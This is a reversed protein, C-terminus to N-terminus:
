KGETISDTMKRTIEAITINGNVADSGLTSETFEKTQTFFDFLKAASASPIDLAKQLSAATVNGEGMNFFVNAARQNGIDTKFNIDEAGELSWQGGSKDFFIDLYNNYTQQNTNGIFEQSELSLGAYAQGTHIQDINAPSGLEELGRNIYDHASEYPLPELGTNEKINMVIASLNEEDLSLSTSLGDAGAGTQILRDAPTNILDQYDSESLGEDFKDFSQLVDAPVDVKSTLIEGPGVKPAPETAETKEPTSAIDDPGMPTSKITDPDITSVSKYEPSGDHSYEHSDVPSEFAAGANHTEVFKGDHFESTTGDMNLEYASVDAAAVRVDNGASDIYGMDKALRALFNGKNSEYDMGLKSEYAKVLDPDNDLQREYAHTIGEGQRVIADNDFTPEPTPEPIVPEPEIPTPDHEGGEGGGFGSGFAVALGALAIGKKLTEIIEDRMKYHEMEALYEKPKIEGRNYREEVNRMNEDFKGAVQDFNAKSSEFQQRYSTLEAELNAREEPSLEKNQLKEKAIETQNYLKKLNDRATSTGHASELAVRAAVATLVLPTALGGTLLGRMAQTVGVGAWAGWTRGYNKTVTSSAAIGALPMSGALVAGAIGGTFFGLAGISAVSLGIKVGTPTKNWVNKIKGLIRGVGTKTNEIKEEYMKDYEAELQIGSMFKAKYLTKLREIDEPSRKENKWKREASALLKNLYSNLADLSERAEPSLGSEMKEGKIMRAFEFRLKDYWKADKFSAKAKELFDDKLNELLEQREYVEFKEVMEAATILETSNLQEATGRGRDDFARISYKVEDGEIFSKTIEYVTGGGAKRLFKGIIPDTQERKEKTELRNEGEEPKVDRDKETEDTPKSEEKEGENKKTDYSIKLISLVQKVTDRIDGLNTSLAMREVLKPFHKELLGKLQKPNMKEWGEFATRVTEQLTEARKEVDTVQETSEPIGGKSTGDGKELGKPMTGKVLHMTLVQKSLEIPEADGANEITVYDGEISTVIFIKNEIKIEQNERLTKITEIAEQTTFAGAELLTNKPVLLEGEVLSTVFASKQVKIPKETDLTELIIYDTGLEKIVYIKGGFNIEQGTKIDDMAEAVKELDFKGAQWTKDLADGSIKMEGLIEDRRNSFDQMVNTEKPNTNSM